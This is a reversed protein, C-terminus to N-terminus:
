WSVTPCNKFVVASVVFEVELSVQTGQSKKFALLTEGQVSRGIHTGGPEPISPNTRTSIARATFASRM